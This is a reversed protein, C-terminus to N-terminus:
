MVNQWRHHWWLGNQKGNTLWQKTQKCIDSKFLLWRSFAATRCDCGGFIDIGVDRWVGRGVVMGKNPFIQVPSRNQTQARQMSSFAGNKGLIGNGVDVSWTKAEFPDRCGSVIVRKIFILSNEDETDGVGDTLEEALPWLRETDHPKGRSLLYCYNLKQKM